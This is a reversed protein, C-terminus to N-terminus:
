VVVLTLPLLPLCRPAPKEEVTSPLLFASSIFRGPSGQTPVWWFLLRSHTWPILSAKSAVLLFVARERLLPPSLGRTQAPGDAAHIDAADSSPIRWGLCRCPLPACSALVDSGRVKATAPVAHDHPHLQPPHRPFIASAPTLWSSPRCFAPSGCKQPFRLVIQTESPRSNGTLNFM